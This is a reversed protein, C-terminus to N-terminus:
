MVDIYKLVQVKYFYRGHHAPVREAFPFLKNAAASVKKSSGHVDSSASGSTSANTDECRTGVHHCLYQSLCLRGVCEEEETLLTGRVKVFHM